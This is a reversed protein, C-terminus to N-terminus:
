STPEPSFRSTRAPFSNHLFFARDWYRWRLLFDSAPQGDPARLLMRRGRRVLSFTPSFDAAAGYLPSFFVTRGGGFAVLPPVLSGLGLPGGAAGQAPNLGAVTTPLGFLRRIVAL